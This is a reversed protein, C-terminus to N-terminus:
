ALIGRATYVTKGHKRPFAKIIDQRTVYNMRSEPRHFVSLLHDTVCDGPRGAANNDIDKYLMRVARMPMTALDTAVLKV